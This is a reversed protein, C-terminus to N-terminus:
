DLTIGPLACLAVPRIYSLAADSRWRGMRQIESLPVGMDHALTAAGIRFSHARIHLDGLGCFGLAKQLVANFQYRTLPECNFHCFLAECGVPRVEIFKRLTTVPCLFSDYARVLKIVLPTGSHNTKCTRFSILLSAGSDGVDDFTVDSLLLVSEQLATKSDATFEGVRMFGFFACLMAARFLLEEFRSACIHPLAELIRTLIPLTIPTRQDVTKRDRRCGELLKSVLFDKTPDFYGQLKHYLGVGAVYTAITSSALGRLSLWAIFEQIVTSLVPLRPVESREGAFHCFANWVTSYTKFSNKAFAVSLLRCIEGAVM